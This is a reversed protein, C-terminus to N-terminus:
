TVSELRERETSNQKWEDIMKQTLPPPKVWGRRFTKLWVLQAIVYALMGFPRHFRVHDMPPTLMTNIAQLTMSFILGACVGVGWGHWPLNIRNSIYIVAVLGVTIMLRSFKEVTLISNWFKVPPHHGAFEALILALITMVVVTGLLDIVLRIPITSYPAFVEAAVELTVALWFAIAILAAIYYVFFYANPGYPRAIIQALYKLLTFATYATFWPFLNYHRGKILLFLTLVGIITSSIWLVQDVVNLSFHLM